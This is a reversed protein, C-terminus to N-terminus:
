RIVGQPLQPLKPEIYVKWLAGFFAMGLREIAHAREKSNAAGTVHLSALLKLVHGLDISLIGSARVEGQRSHGHRIVTYLTTNSEWVDFSGHDRVDKFGDLLYPQGDEGYFPLAYLMKRADPRDSPAFLNFVGASIPAGESGTFGPVHLVGTAIATHDVDSLFEDLDLISILLTFRMKNGSKQGAQAAGVFDTSPSWGSSVAGSMTEHFSISIMHSEPEATGLTPIHVKDLPEAIHKALAREPAQWSPQDTIRRIIGEISREAVASITHSPNAGIARPIISGDLVFLGPHGFVEGHGDTVGHEADDAMHCGGLNHITLPQHLLKWTPSHTLEGGLAKAVDQALRSQATYLPLNPALEWRMRLQGTLGDLTMTGSAHDRGMLLLVTSHQTRADATPADARAGIVRLLDEWLVQGTKELPRQPDLAQGRVAMDEPVGGDELLFWTPDQHHRGREFLIASTIGPGRSPLMVEQTHFVLTLLDGNASYGHGLKASIKPLTHHQDRCRLLLETSNVAGACLFVRRTLIRAEKGQPTGDSHDLYSVCYGGAEPTIRHARCGTKVQAGHQEAVALYNLDLTNKAHHNCGIICEGCHRCGEQDVGFKNKSVSEPQGFNVALNPLFFQGSRGLSEAARQLRRTREPIGLPQSEQIPTVDLMYAALDYYPDLSKRTVGQPWGKDFLAAPARMQVSNYLLSGGGYGAVQLALMETLLPKVELLGQRADSYMWDQLSDMRRPFSGRPYRRGRELILVRQGAQALRCAAIAGGFGSGIVVADVREPTM